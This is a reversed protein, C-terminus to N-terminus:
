FSVVLTGNYFKREDFGLCAPQVAESFTLPEGLRILAVDNLTTMNDDYYCPHRHIAAIPKYLKKDYIKVLDIDTLAFLFHEILEM